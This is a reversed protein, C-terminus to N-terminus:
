GNILDKPSVKLNKAIKFLTEMNPQRSNKVYASILAYAVGSDKHLRYATIGKEHLVDGIRNLKKAM